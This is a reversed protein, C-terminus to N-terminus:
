PEAAPRLLCPRPLPAAQRRVEPDRRPHSLSRRRPRPRAAMGRHAVRGRRSGQRPLVRQGADCRPRGPGRREPPAPQAGASTVPSHRWHLATVSNPGEVARRRWSRPDSRTRSDGRQQRTSRRKATRIVRTSRPAPASSSTSWRWTTTYRVRRAAVTPGGEADIVARVDAGTSLLACVVELEARQAAVLLAAPVASQNIIGDVADSTDDLVDQRGRRSRLTTLRADNVPTTRFSPSSRIGGTRRSTM